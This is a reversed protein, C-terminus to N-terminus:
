AHVQDLHEVPARHREIRLLLAFLGAVDQALLLELVNVGLPQAVQAAPGVDLHALRRGSRRATTFCTARLRNPWCKRVSAATISAITAAIPGRRASASTSIPGPRPANVPGSASDTSRSVTISSSRSRARRSRARLSRSTISASTNVTSKRASAALSPAGSRTTPLRGYLM